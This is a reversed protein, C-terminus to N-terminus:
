KLLEVDTKTLIETKRDVKNRLSLRIKNTEDVLFLKEADNPKMCLTIFKNEKSNKEDSGSDIVKVNQFVTKVKETSYPPKIFVLIDVYDGDKIHGGVSSVMDTKITVARFGNPVVASVGEEKEGKILDMQLIQEGEYINEKAIKGVVKEKEAAAGSVAYKEPVTIEKIENAKIVTNEKINSAAILVTVRPVNELSKIRFYYFLLGTVVMALALAFFLLKIRYNKLVINRRWM